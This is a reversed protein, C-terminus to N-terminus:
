HFRLVRFPVSPRCREKNRDSTSIFFGKPLTSGVSKAAAVSLSDGLDQKSVLANWNIDGCFRPSLGPFLSERVKSHVGDAGIVLKARVPPRPLYLLPGWRRADFHVEARSPDGQCPVVRQVRLNCHIASTPVLDALLRQLKGWCIITIEDFRPRSSIKPEIEGSGRIKTTSEGLLLGTAKIRSPLEPDVIQLAAMSQKGLSLITGTDTRLSSAAEFLHADFGNRRLAAFVALGGMGGGCVAIDVEKPSSLIQYGVVGFVCSVSAIAAHFVSM